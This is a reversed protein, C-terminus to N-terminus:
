SFTTNEPAVTFDVGAFRSGVFREGRLVADLAPLLECAADSKVVYGRAGLSFAEQVIAASSEQSLFLIKSKPSLTRIRRSAEMGNLKPLSIDLLILEPQLEEAKQIAAIGDSVECVIQLQLQAQVADAVFRRFPEFDDALLIRVSATTM